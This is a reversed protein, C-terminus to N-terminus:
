TSLYADDLNIYDFMNWALGNLKTSITYTHSSVVLDTVFQEKILLDNMDAYVGKAATQDTTTWMKTALDSYQQSTFREANARANFPFAGKVLTAPHLQGFGHVNVFLGPIGSGSLLSFFDAAQQPKATAKLGASTLDFQVIEAIGANPAFGANYYIDVSAGSAGATALLQKAKAPDHRYTDRKSVDFASSSPSWPISSTHGIGGLVQSLIRERDIAQAIAQRVEVKDLPPVTVNQGLYFVSDQADSPVLQFGASGKLGIADLPALDLALQSQGSRLSSVASSSQTVVAVEVGDLYPRGAKWYQDNRKLTYGSGPRYSQMTFPGTGIFKRGALLDPYTEKDVVIMVEFLDFVNSVAQSFTLTVENAGTKRADCIAAVHKLQSSTTDQKLIDIVNVVDDPGFPRGTHYKVDDRLSLVYTKGGDSINWHTALSPKPDLTKHDYETLTNFVTRCISFNPNNQSLLTAPAIDATQVMRLTGGQVPKSRGSKDRSVAATCSALLVAGGVGLSGALFRRRSLNASYLDSM